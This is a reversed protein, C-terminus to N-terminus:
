GDKWGDKEHETMGEGKREKERVRVGVDCEVVENETFV